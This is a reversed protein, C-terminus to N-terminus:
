ARPGVKQGNFFRRDIFEEDELVRPLLGRDVSWQQYARLGTTDLVAGPPALPWCAQELVERSLGTAAQVIEMNRATKGAAFQELGRLVASAFREGLEPREDILRPGFMMVSHPYGPVVEAAPTWLIAAGGALHQSIFPEGEVMVDVVHNALAGVAAPPPINTLEVDDVSLGHRQLLLDLEYGLPTLLDTDYILQRLKEPANLAGAELLERRALVGVFPCTDTSLELMGAVARVRAGAAIMGLENVALMGNTVDVEGSALATMFEQSRGLRVFEVDLGADAFFGEERAIFYPMHTLFPLVVATVRDLDPKAVSETTPACSSPALLAILLLAVCSRPSRRTVRFVPATPNPV